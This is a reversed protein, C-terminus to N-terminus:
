TRTDGPLCIASCAVVVILGAVRCGFHVQAGYSKLYALAPDILAEALSHHAIMPRCHVGGKMLTETFVPRMLSAAAQDLPTNLVALILPEWFQTYAPSAQDLLDAIVARQDAFLMKLGPLYDLATTGPARRGASFVWSPFRGENIDIAWRAGSKIDCFPFRATEVIHFGDASIADCYRKVSTNGSLVLHNGNDIIQGLHSDEYSRCRGGAQAAGEYVSVSHGLQVAEVAASLGALGAGIIHVHSM